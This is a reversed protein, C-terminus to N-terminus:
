PLILFVLLLSIAAWIWAFTESILLSAARLADIFERRAAAHDRALYWAFARNVALLPVTLLGIVGLATNLTGFEGPRLERRFVIQAMFHLLALLAWLAPSQGTEQRYLDFNRRFFGANTATPTSHPTMTSQLFSINIPHLSQDPPLGPWM